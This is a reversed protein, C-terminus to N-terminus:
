TLAVVKRAGHREIGEVRQQLRAGLDIRPGGIRETGHSGRVRYGYQTDVRSPRLKLTVACSPPTVAMLHRYRDTSTERTGESGTGALNADAESDLRLSCKDERSPHGSAEDEAPTGVAHRAQV